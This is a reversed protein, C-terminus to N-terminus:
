LTRGNSPSAAATQDPNHAARIAPAGKLQIPLTIGLSSLNWIISLCKILDPPDPLVHGSLDTPRIHINVRGNPKRSPRNADFLAGRLTGHAKRYTAFLEAAQATMEFLIHEHKTATYASLWAHWRYPMGAKCAPSDDHDHPLTRGKWFHTYTGVLNDSTVVARLNASAPTRVLKLAVGRPDAPPANQFTHM